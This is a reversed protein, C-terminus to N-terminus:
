QRAPKHLIEAVLEMASESLEIGHGTNPLIHVERLDRALARSRNITNQHPILADSDGLILWTPVSWGNLESDPMKYPLDAKFNFKQLTQLIIEILMERREAAVGEGGALVIHDVFRAVNKKNPWVIPLLNYFMSAPAFSIYSFGIPNLLVMKIIREPAANALKIALQGGFSAGAINTKDLGLGDLVETVWTGFEDTKVGPSNGSSLGPQGIVDVLYLRYNGKLPGLNDNLDWYMGFTRAGPLIVLPDLDPRDHDLSLVSTEGFSTQVTLKKYFSNNLAQVKEIWDEVFKRAAPIQIIFRAQNENPLLLM